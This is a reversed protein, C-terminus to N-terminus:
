IKELDNRTTKLINARFEERFIQEMEPLDIKLDEFEEYEKIALSMESSEISQHTIQFSQIVENTTDSFVKVVGKNKQMFGAKKHFKFILYCFLLLHHWFNIKDLHIKFEDDESLRQVIKLFEDINVRIFRLNDIFVDNRLVFWTVVKSWSLFQNFLKDFEEIQIETSELSEKITKNNKQFKNKFNSVIDTKPPQEYESDEEDDFKRQIIRRRVSELSGLKEFKVRQLLYYFWEPDDTFQELKNLFAILGYRGDSKQIREIDMRRPTLELTQTSIWRKNSQIVKE